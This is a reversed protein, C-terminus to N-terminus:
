EKQNDRTQTSPPNLHASQGRRFFILVAGLILTLWGGIPFALAVAWIGLGLAFALIALVVGTLMALIVLGLMFPPGTVVAREALLTAYSKRNLSTM